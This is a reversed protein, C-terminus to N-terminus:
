IGVDNEEEEQLSQMKLIKRVDNKEDASLLILCVLGL